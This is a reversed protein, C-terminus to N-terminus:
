LSYIPENLSDLKITDRPLRQVIKTIAQQEYAFVTCGYRAVLFYKLDLWVTVILRM